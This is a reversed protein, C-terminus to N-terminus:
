RTLQQSRRIGLASRLWDQSGADTGLAEVARRWGLYHDLYETAVGHFPRLWEKLRGHYGNVNNIHLNPAESRPGGPKPLICCPIKAKRAFSVIAKGGDCCLQNDPTVVGGLVAAISARDRKVLVADITQGSRDRAILVPIQEASLGRTKAMGGRKHAPRPLGSRRGKFSELIYTEDAEVIGTLQGPKDLAPASLFRHRWRFATTVDVACRKAAKVLSEGSILAQTQSAWREKMRLRALPTGTLANFSRRCDGCRYRPLGSAYGWRQLSQGGCHPCGTLDVKAQAATELSVAERRVAVPVESAAVAEIRAVTGNRTGSMSGAIPTAAFGAQAGPAATKLSVDSVEALALARLGQVRQEATLWRIGDLWAEFLDGDM